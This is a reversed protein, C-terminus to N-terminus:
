QHGPASRVPLTLAFDELGTIDGDSSSPWGCDSPARSSASQWGGDSDEAIPAAVAEVGVTGAVLPPPQDLAAIDPVSDFGAGVAEAESASAWGDEAMM